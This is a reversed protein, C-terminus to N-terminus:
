DYRFGEIIVIVFFLYSHEILVADLGANLFLSYIDSFGEVYQDASNVDVSIDGLRASAIDVDDHCDIGLGLFHQQGGRRTVIKDRDRLYGITYSVLECVGTDVTHVRRHPGELFEISNIYGIEDANVEICQDFKDIGHVTQINVDLIRKICVRILIMEVLSPVVHEAVLDQREAALSVAIRVAVVLAAAVLLLYELCQNLFQDGGSNQRM